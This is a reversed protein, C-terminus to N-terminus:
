LALVRFARVSIQGKGCYIAVTGPEVASNDTCRAVEANEFFLRLTNDKVELRYTHWQDDLVFNADAITNEGYGIVMRTNAGNYGAWFGMGNIMRAMLYVDTGAEPHAIQIECEVAYDVQAGLDVPAVAFTDSTGDTVLMGGITTWQGAAAWGSVGQSWDTIEYLVTETPVGITVTTEATVTTETTDTDPPTTVETTDTTDTAETTTTSDTTTVAAADTTTPATTSTPAAYRVAVASASTDAKSETMSGCAAVFPLVMLAVAVV